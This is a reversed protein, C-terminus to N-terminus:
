GLDSLNYQVPVFALVLWARLSSFLGFLIGTSNSVLPNPFSCLDSWPAKPLTSLQSLHTYHIPHSPSLGGTRVVLGIAPPGSTGDTTLGGRVRIIRTGAYLFGRSIDGSVDKLDKWRALDEDKIPIKSVPVSEGTLMSENVITDGSLLFMDAPFVSLPPDM